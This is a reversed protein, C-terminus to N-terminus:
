KIWVNMRPQSLESNKRSIKKCGLQDRLLSETMEFSAETAYFCGDAHIDELKDVKIEVVHVGSSELQHALILGWGQVDSANNVSVDINEDLIPELVFKNKTWVSTTTNFVSFERGDPEVVKDVANNPLSLELVKKSKVIEGLFKRMLMRDRVSLDTKTRLSLLAGLVDEVEAKTKDIKITRAVIVGMSQGLSKEVVEFLNREGLGYSWLSAIPYSASSNYIKVKVDSPLEIWSVMEEDPRLLLLSIEREGVVVINFGINKNFIGRRTLNIILISLLIALFSVGLIYQYKKNISVM